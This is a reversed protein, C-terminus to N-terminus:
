EVAQRQQDNFTNIKHILRETHVWCLAHCLV